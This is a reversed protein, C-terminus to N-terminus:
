NSNSEVDSEPYEDRESDVGKGVILELTEKFKQYPERFRQLANKLYDNLEPYEPTEWEKEFTDIAKLFKSCMGELMM